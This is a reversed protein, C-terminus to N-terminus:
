GKQKHANLDGQEMQVANDCMFRNKRTEGPRVSVPKLSSQFYGLFPLGLKQSQPGLFNSSSVSSDQNELVEVM